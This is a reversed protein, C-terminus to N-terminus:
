HHTEHQHTRSAEAGDGSTLREDVALDIFRLKHRQRSVHARFRVRAMVPGPQRNWAESDDAVPAPRSWNPWRRSPWTTYESIGPIVGAGVPRQKSVQSCSPMHRTPNRCSRGPSSNRSTAPAAASGAAACVSCWDLDWCAPRSRCRRRSRWASRCHNRGANGHRRARCVRRRATRPLRSHAVIVNDAVRDRTHPTARGAGACGVRPRRHLCKTRIALKPRPAASNFWFVPKRWPLGIEGVVRQGCQVVSEVAVAGAVGVLFLRTCRGRRSRRSLSTFQTSREAAVITPGLPASEHTRLFELFCVAGGHSPNQLPM